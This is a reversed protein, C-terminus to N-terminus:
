VLTVECRCILSKPPVSTRSSHCLPIRSPSSTSSAANGSRRPTRPPTAVPEPLATAGETPVPTQAQMPSCYPKDGAMSQGTNVPPEGTPRLHRRNRRLTSGDPTAVIYSRPEESCRTVVAPKWTDRPTDLVRVADGPHLPKLGHATTDYHEKMKDQRAQLSVNVDSRDDTYTRHAGTAPLNSKYRRGNLIEAPSPLQHNVPTTCLCLM